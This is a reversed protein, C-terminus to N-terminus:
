RVYNLSDTFHQPCQRGMRQCRPHWLHHDEPAAGYALLNGTFTGALDTGLMREFRLKM